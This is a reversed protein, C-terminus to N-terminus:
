MFDYRDYSEIKSITEQHKLEKALEQELELYYINCPEECTINECSRCCNPIKPVDNM